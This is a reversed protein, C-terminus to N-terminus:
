RIYIRDSGYLSSNRGNGTYNTKLCDDYGYDYLQTTARANELAGRCEEPVQYAVDCDQTLKQIQKKASKLQKIPREIGSKCQVLFM